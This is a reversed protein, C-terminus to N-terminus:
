AARPKRFRLGDRTLGDAIRDCEERRARASTVSVLLLTGFWDVHVQRQHVPTKNVHGDLRIEYADLAGVEGRREGRVQLGTVESLKRASASAQEALSQGSRAERAITVALSSTPGPRCFVNLSRDEYGDPVDFRLEHVRYTAM